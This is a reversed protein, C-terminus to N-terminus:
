RSQLNKRARSMRDKLGSLPAKEIKSNDWWVITQDTIEYILEHNQLQALMEKQTIKPKRKMIELILAQLTDPRSKRANARQRGAELARKTSESAAPAILGITLADSLLKAIYFGVLPTTQLQDLLSRSLTEVEHHLHRMLDADSGQLLGGELSDRAHKILNMLQLEVWYLPDNPDRM